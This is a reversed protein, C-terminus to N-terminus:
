TSFRSNRAPEQLLKASLTSETQISYRLDFRWNSQRANPSPYSEPGPSLSRPRQIRAIVEEEGNASFSNMRIARGRLTVTPSRLAAISTIVCFVLVVTLGFKM